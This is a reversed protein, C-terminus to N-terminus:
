RPKFKKVVKAIQQMTDLGGKKRLLNGTVIVDAGAELISRATKVDRIGGGVILPVSIWSKVKRIMDLPVTLPAGSGAELYVLKMGMYQAALAHAAALSPKSRPLPRTKSVKEVSTVTGSAILVYATAITEIRIRRIVPAAKVQEGILNVPNRGSVLSLYLLADASASLQSSDGPFLMVPVSVSRKVAKVFADFSRTHLLSGGILVAEAGAAEAEAAIRGGEVPQFDDPDLLIWYQRRGKGAKKIISALINKRKM